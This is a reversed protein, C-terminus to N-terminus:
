SHQRIGILEIDFILTGLTSGEGNALRTPNFITTFLRQRDFFNPPIPEQSTNQYGQSPPIIVRRLGGVRMSKVAAEIGPIVKGSGVTFVFPMPDGTEDKHDYTSDFRWGQKAALRGYYHIAVQDGDAPVEGSGERLDLAKVGGSAPIEAFRPAAALATATPLAFAATFAVLLHRRRATPPPTTAIPVAKTKSPPPPVAGAVVATVM